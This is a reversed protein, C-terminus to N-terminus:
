KFILFYWVKINDFIDEERARTSLNAALNDYDGFRPQGLNSAADLRKVRELVASVNIRSLPNYVGL